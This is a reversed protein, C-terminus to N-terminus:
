GKLVFEVAHLVDDFIYKPEASSSLDNGTGQYVGTKVLISEWGYNNAGQIDSFPNDGVMYVTPSPSSKSWNSLLKNAYDYSFTFPKGIVQSQLEHGTLEKYLTEVTLRFAGQGFRPWKYKSAWLLDNNSFHIPIAPDSVSKLDPVRTGWKGQQSVLLDLVIQTDSGMDRPDAFVLIADFKTDLSVSPDAWAELESRRYRHFPWVSPEINVIDAPIVVDQFGYSHAVYRCKDQDGGVVLVRDYKKVLTKFPTHSQLLQDESIDVNLMTTLNAVRDRETHGGGNTMLIWPVSNDNLLKLAKPAQPIVKSGRLLVGDIRTLSSYSLDATPGKSLLLRLTQQVRRIGAYLQAFVV